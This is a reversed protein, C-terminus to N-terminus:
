VPDIRIATFGNLSTPCKYSSCMIDIYRPARNPSRLGCTYAVASAAYSASRVSPTDCLTSTLTSDQAPFVSVAFNNIRYM